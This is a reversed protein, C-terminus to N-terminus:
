CPRSISSQLRCGGKQGYRPQGLVFRFTSNESFDGDEITNLSVQYTSRDCTTIIDNQSSGGDTLTVSVVGPLTSNVLPIAGNQRRALPGAACLSPLACIALAPFLLM